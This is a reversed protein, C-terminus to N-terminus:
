INLANEQKKIIKFEYAAMAITVIASLLDAAPGTYLIGNIGYFHPLIILLPLFFIIQRTLSLFVGKIPKGISTFFTSTIPQFCCLWTFFLYTRFFNVGFQYYEDSGEGFLSIIQKPFAQFLIFATISIILGATIALRYAEKVRGYKKAGYNFSEIPQTGQGLGIIVSFVIQNVKTVIGACAIPISDGFESLAGYKKLSNNLVIQVIMMAIQNFFSAMGISM